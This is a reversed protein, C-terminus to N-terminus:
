LDVIAVRRRAVLRTAGADCWVLGPLDPMPGGHSLARAWSASPGPFRSEFIHHYRAILQRNRASARVVWCLGVRLPGADGGTAAALGAAEALKRDSSRAAAGLDGFSNWCEILVMRRQRRDVLVVDSSRSPDLPRTPLEFRGKYGADRSLRLVLEQIALHGADVPEEQVDRLFELRLPRGLAEALAFWTELPVGAGRGAEIDALRARSIGVRTALAQQTLRRRKRSQRVGEGARAASAVAKQAGVIRAQARRVGAM